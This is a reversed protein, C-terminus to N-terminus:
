PGIRRGTREKRRRVNEEHQQRLKEAKRDRQAQQRERNGARVRETRCTEDDCYWPPRGARYPQGDKRTRVPRRDVVPRGCHRCPQPQELEALTSAATLATREHPPAATARAGASNGDNSRPVLVLVYLTSHTQSLRVGRQHAVIRWYGADLFQCADDDIIRPSPADHARMFLGLTPPASAPHPPASM